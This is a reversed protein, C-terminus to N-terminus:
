RQSTIKEKFWRRDRRKLLLETVIVLIIGITYALIDPWEFSTGLVIRALKSHNLGVMEVLKFYQLIEILCAFFLVGAATPLIPTNLFSRVFCYILIVVLLDGIYPRIFQDHVFFGIFIEIFLFVLALVFYNKSFRIMSRM